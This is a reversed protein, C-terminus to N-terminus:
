HRIAGDGLKRLDLMVQDDELLWGDVVELGSRTQYAITFHAPDRADCQGAFIRVVQGDKEDGGLQTWNTTSLLGASALTNGPRFVASRFMLPGDHDSGLTDVAVLRRRGARTHREHLFLVAAPKRGPPEALRYFDRWPRAFEIVPVGAGAAMYDGPNRMLLKAAQPDTEYVVHDAAPSYAMATRQVAILQFRAIAAPGYIIAIITIAVFILPLIARRMWRRPRSPAKEYTLNLPVESM